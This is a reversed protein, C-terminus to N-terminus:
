LCLRLGFCVHGIVLLGGISGIARGSGSSLDGIPLEAAVSIGVFDGMGRDGFDLWRTRADYASMCDLTRIITSGVSPATRM